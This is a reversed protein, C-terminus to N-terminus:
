NVRFFSRMSEWTTTVHPNMEDVADGELVGQDPGTFHKAVLHDKSTYRGRTNNDWQIVLEVREGRATGNIRTSRVRGGSHTADGDIIGDENQHLVLDVLFGNKQKIQWAGSVDVNRSM